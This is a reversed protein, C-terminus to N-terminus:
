HKFLASKDMQSCEQQNNKSLAKGLKLSRFDKFFGERAYFSTM